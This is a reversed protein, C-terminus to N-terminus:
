ASSAILVLFDSHRLDFSHRIILHRVATAGGKRSEDNTMTEPKPSGVENNKNM